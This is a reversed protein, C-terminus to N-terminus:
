NQKVNEGKYMQEYMNDWDWFVESVKIMELVAQKTLYESVVKGSENKYQVPLSDYEYFDILEKTVSFTRPRYKPNIIYKYEDSGKLNKIEAETLYADVKLDYIPDTYKDKLYPYKDDIWTLMEQETMNTLENEVDLNKIYKCVSYADKESWVTLSVYYKMNKYVDDATDSAECISKADDFIGQIFEDWIVGQNQSNYYDFDFESYDYTTNYWIINRDFYHAYEYEKQMSVKSTEDTENQKSIAENNDDIISKDSCAFLFFVIFLISTFLIRNKM